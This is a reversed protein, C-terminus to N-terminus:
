PEWRLASLKKIPVQELSGDVFVVRIYQKSHAHPQAADLGGFPAHGPQTEFLLVTKGPVNTFALGGLQQNVAFAFLSNTDFPCGFYHPPLLGDDRLAVLCDAAPPFRGKAKAEVLLTSGIAKQNSRCWSVMTDRKSTTVAPTIVIFALFFVVALQAGFGGKRAEIISKARWLIFWSVTGGLLATLGCGLAALVLYLAADDPVLRLGVLWLLFAAGGLFPAAKAMTVWPSPTARAQTPETTAM